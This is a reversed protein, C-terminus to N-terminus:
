PINSSATIWAAGAMIKAPNAPAMRHFRAVQSKPSGEEEDCASNPPRMPATTRAAPTWPTWQPVTIELIMRGATMAGTTAPSAAASAM